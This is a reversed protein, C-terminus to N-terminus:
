SSTAVAIGAFLAMGAMVGLYILVAKVAWHMGAPKVQGVASYAILEATSRSGHVVTFGNQEVSQIRGRLREGSTTKLDIKKGIGLATVVQRVAVVDPAGDANSSTRAEVDAPQQSESMVDVPEALVSANTLPRAAVPLTSEAVLVLALTLSMASKM